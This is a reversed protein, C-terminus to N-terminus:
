WGEEVQSGFEPEGVVVRDDDAAQMQIADLLRQYEPGNM